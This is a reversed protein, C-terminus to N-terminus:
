SQACGRRRVQQTVQPLSSPADPGGEERRCAPAFEVHPSLPVGGLDGCPTRTQAPRVLGNSGLGLAQRDGRHGLVM